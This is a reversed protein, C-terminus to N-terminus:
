CRSLLSRVPMRYRRFFHIWHDSLKLKGEEILQFIMVATYTKAISAVRFKSEETLPKKM